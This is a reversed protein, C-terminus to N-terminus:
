NPLFDEVAIELDPFAALRFKDGAAYTQKTQFGDVAPKQYDEVTNNEVNVILYQVIGARAYALGKERRDFSLTSDSVEIILFIDAPTPHSQLYKELPLRALVIDPEPESVDNLLIPDQVRIVAQEGLVKYFYRTILTNTSTHKTGKPMKNIIAGNLLEVNDNETLIGKEVMLDYIKVTFRSSEPFLNVAKDASIEERPRETLELVASM